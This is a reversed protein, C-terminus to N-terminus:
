VSAPIVPATCDLLSRVCADVEEVAITTIDNNVGTIKIAGPRPLFWEPNRWPFLQVMDTRLTHAVHSPGCDNAIVLRAREFQSFLTTIPAKILMAPTVSQAELWERETIELPGLVFCYDYDPFDAKLRLFLEYYRAIGWKKPGELSEKEGGTGGPVFFIADRRQNPHQPPYEMTPIGNAELLRQYNVGRYLTRNMEVKTKILFPFYRDRFAILKTGILTGLLIPFHNGTSFSIVYEPRERFARKRVEKKDQQQWEDALGLELLFESVSYRGVIVIRRDAFYRRLAYISHIHVIQDGFHRRNHLFVFIPRM